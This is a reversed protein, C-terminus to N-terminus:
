QGPTEVAPLGLVDAKNTINLDSAVLIVTGTPHAAQVELAGALIRDDGSTRDLWDPLREFSPERTRAIVTIGEGAPVGKTLEGATRLDRIVKLALRARTRQETTRGGDKLADLEKIVEPLLEVTFEGSGAAAAYASLNPEDMLASTDLVLRIGENGRQSLLDLAKRLPAMREVARTKALDITRPISHDWGTRKIWKRIFGDAGQVEKKLEPTIGAFLTQFRAWWADYDESLKMRALQQADDSPGWGWDSAGLFVVGSDDRNPNVYRITSIDLLAGLESEIVELDAALRSQFTQPDPSVTTGRRM